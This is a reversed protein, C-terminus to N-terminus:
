ILEIVEGWGSDVNTNDRTRKFKRGDPLQVTATASYGRTEGVWEDVSISFPVPSNFSFDVDVLHQEDNPHIVTFTTDAGDIVSNTVLLQFYKGHKAFYVDQKTVLQSWFTALVADAKNKLQLLTM